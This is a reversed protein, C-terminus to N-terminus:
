KGTQDSPFVATFLGDRYADYARRGVVSWEDDKNCQLRSRMSDHVIKGVQIYFVRELGARAALKAWSAIQCLARLIRDTETWVKELEEIKAVLKQDIIEDIGDM